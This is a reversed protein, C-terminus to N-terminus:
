GSKQTPGFPTRLALSPNSDSRPPLTDTRFADDIHYTTVGFSDERKEEASRSYLGLIEDTITTWMDETGQNVYVASAYHQEMAAILAEKEIPDLASQETRNVPKGVWFNGLPVTCCPRSPHSM